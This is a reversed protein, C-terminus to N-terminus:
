STVKIINKDSLYRIPHPSSSLYHEYGGLQGFNNAGWSNVQNQADLSLCFDRGCSIQEIESLNGIERPTEINSKSKGVGSKGSKGAGLVYLKKTKDLILMYVFDNNIMGIIYTNQNSCHIKEAQIKGTGQGFYDSKKPIKQVGSGYDRVRRARNQHKERKIGLKGHTKSGWSFVEGKDNIAAGHHDGLSIDKINEVELNEVLRPITENKASLGFDHGLIGDRSAGFTYVKGDPTLLASANKSCDIKKISIKDIPITDIKQPFSVSHKEYGLGLQGNNNSGWSILKQKSPQHNLKKNDISTM